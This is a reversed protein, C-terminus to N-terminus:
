RLEVLVKLMYLEEKKQRIIQLHVPLDFSLPSHLQLSLAERQIPKTSILLSGQELIYVIRSLPLVQEAKLLTTNM